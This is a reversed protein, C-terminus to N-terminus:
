YLDRKFPRQSEAVGLKSRIKFLNLILNPEINSFTLLKMDNSTKSYPVIKHYTVKSIKDNGAIASRSSTTLPHDFCNQIGISGSKIFFFKWSWGTENVVSKLLTQPRCTTWLSTLDAIKQQRGWICSSHFPISAPNRNLENKKVLEDM